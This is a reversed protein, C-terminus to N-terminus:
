FFMGKRLLAQIFPKCILFDEVMIDIKGNELSLYIINICVNVDTVSIESLLNDVFLLGFKGLNKYVGDGSELIYDLDSARWISVNRIVSLCLANLAM